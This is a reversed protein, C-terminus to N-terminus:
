ESKCLELIMKARALWTHEVASGRAAESLRQALSTDTILQKIAKGLGAAEDPPTLLTNEENKLVQRLAPLDSAVIPRGAALYEYLKLPSMWATTDEGSPTLTRAGYPMALVDAAAMYVPTRAPSQYGEFRAARVGLQEARKRWVAVEAEDRGGVILLKVPLSSVAEFLAELGRGEYLGGVYVVWPGPELGLAQRAAEATLTPDFRSLDVGDPAVTAVLGYERQYIERLPESIVILRGRPHRAIWNLMMRQRTTAPRGHAEVLGWAGRWLALLPATLDQGRTYCIWDRGPEALTAQVQFVDSARPLGSFQRTEFKFIPKVGYYGFVDEQPERRRAVLKVLAGAGAFAACMQMVQLSSAKPAPFASSTIYTLRPPPQNEMYRLPPGDV